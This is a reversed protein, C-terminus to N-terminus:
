SRQFWMGIVPSVTIAAILAFDRGYYGPGTFVSILLSAGIVIM